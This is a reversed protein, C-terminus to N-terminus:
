EGNSMTRGYKKEGQTHKEVEEDPVHLGPQILIEVYDSGPKQNTV